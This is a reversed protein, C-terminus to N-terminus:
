EPCRILEAAFEDQILYIGNYSKMLIIRWDWHEGEGSCKADYITASMGRIKTPNSLECGMEVVFFVDDKIKVPGGDTQVMNVNCSSNGSFYLGEYPGSLASNALFTNFGVDCSFYADTKEM